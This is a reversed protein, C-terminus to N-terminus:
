KKAGLMVLTKERGAALTQLVSHKETDNLIWTTNWVCCALVILGVLGYAAGLGLLLPTLCVIIVGRDIQMGERANLWLVLCLAVANAAATAWVAGVLGFQPVLWVNLGLNALLGLFLAVSGWKAKEVCWLYTQALLMLSFWACYTITWPLIALGDNYKGALVVTFVWPATCLIVVGGALLAAGALKLILNLTRSVDGRRGAEWDCSLHPTIVGGVMAAVSILLVPVIRSSDYQGVWAAAASAKLGSFHILMYRDAIDFLNGLVNTVWMWGAFPLLRSWMTRHTLISTDQPFDKWALRLCVLAGASAVSTGAICAYALSTADASWTLLLVLGVCAFTLSNFFNMISAVRVRRLATFLEDLFNFLVMPALAAAALWVMNVQAPDNFMLWAIREPALCLAATALLTLLISSIGIRRLFVRLQGRGRYHEAYRGFSGPLGLVALPAMLVLFNFLLNWRGLEEPTLIRCFVISRTLGVSKQVVTLALLFFVGAALTEAAPKKGAAVAQLETPTERLPPLAVHATADATTDSHLTADFFSPSV